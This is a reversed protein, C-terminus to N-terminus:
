EVILVGQATKAHYEGEFPYRGAALPKLKITITGGKTVIKEVRLATSEFEEVADDENKLTIVIPKGAPAKIESPEFKHGKLKLEIAVPDDAFCPGPLLTIALAILPAHFRWLSM